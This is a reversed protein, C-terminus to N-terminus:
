ADATFELEGRVLINGTNGVECVEYVAIQLRDNAGSRRYTWMVSLADKLEGFEITQKSLRLDVGTGADRMLDLRVQEHLWPLSSKLQADNMRM